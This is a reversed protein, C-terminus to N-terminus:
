AREVGVSRVELRLRDGPYERPDWGDAEALIGLAREVTAPREGTRAEVYALLRSSSAVDVVYRATIRVPTGGGAAEDAPLDASRLPVHRIPSPWGTRTLLLREHERVADRLMGGQQILGVVDVDPEVALRAHREMADHVARVADLIQTPHHPM